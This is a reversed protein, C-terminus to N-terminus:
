FMKGDNAIWSTNQLEIQLAPIFNFTIMVTAQGVIDLEKLVKQVQETEEEEEKHQRQVVIAQFPPQSHHPPQQRLELPAEICFESQHHSCVVM